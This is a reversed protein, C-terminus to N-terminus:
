GSVACHSYNTGLLAINETIFFVPIVAIVRPSHMEKGPVGSVEMLSDGIGYILTIGDRTKLPKSPMSGKIVFSPQDLNPEPLRKSQLTFSFNVVISTIAVIAFYRRAIINM